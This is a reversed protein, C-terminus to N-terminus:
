GMDRKAVSKKFMFKVMFSERDICIKRGDQYYDIRGDKIMQRIKWDSWKLLTKVEKITMIPSATEIEKNSGTKDQKM